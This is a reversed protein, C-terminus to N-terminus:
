GFQVRYVLVLWDLPSRNAVILATCLFFGLFFLGSCFTLSHSGLSQVAHWCNRPCPKVDHHCPLELQYALGDYTRGSELVLAIAIVVGLVM